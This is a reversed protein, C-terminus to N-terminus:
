AAVNTHCKLMDLATVVGKLVGQETVALYEIQNEIMLKKVEEILDDPHVEFMMCRSIEWARVVKMNKRQLHFNALEKPGIIGVIVGNSGVVSVSTFAHHVMTEEVVDITDNADVTWLNQTMVSSINKEIIPVILNEPLATPANNPEFFESVSFNSGFPYNNNTSPNTWSDEELIPLTRTDM